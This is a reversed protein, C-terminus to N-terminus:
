AAQVLEAVEKLWAWPQDGADALSSRTPPDNLCVRSPGCSIMSTCRSSSSGESSTDHHRFRFKRISFLGDGGVRETTGVLQGPELTSPKSRCLSFGHDQFRDRGGTVPAIRGRSESELRERSVLDFRHDAAQERRGLARAPPARSSANAARAANRAAPARRGEEGETVPELAFSVTGGFPGGEIRVVALARDVQAPAAM